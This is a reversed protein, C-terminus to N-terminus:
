LNSHQKTRFTVLDIPAWHRLSRSCELTTCDIMSVGHGSDVHLFSGRRGHEYNQNSYSRDKLILQQCIM